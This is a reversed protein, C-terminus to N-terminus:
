LTSTRVTGVTLWDGWVGDCSPITRLCAREIDSKPTKMRHFDLCQAGDTGWIAEHTPGDPQYKGRTPLLGHSESLRIQVGPKTFTKGAGFGRWGCASMTWANLMAWREDATTAVGINKAAAATTYGSLHMKYPAGDKCAINMWGATDAGVTVKKTFPDYTDGAFVIARLLPDLPDNNALSCLPHEDGPREERSDPDIYLPAYKFDYAQVGAHGGVWFQESNDYTPTVDTIRIRYPVGNVTVRIKTDILQEDVALQAGTVPAKGLLKDLEVVLRMPTDDARTVNTIVVGEDNPVKDSSLMWFYVGDIVPSNGNGCDNDDCHGTYLPTTISSEPEPEPVCAPVGVMIAVALVNLKPM